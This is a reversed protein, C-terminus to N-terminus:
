PIIPLKTCNKQCNKSRKRFFVLSFDYMYTNHNGINTKKISVFKKNCILTHHFCHWKASKDYYLMNNIFIRFRIHSIKAFIIEKTFLNNM